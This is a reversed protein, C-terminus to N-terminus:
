KQLSYEKGLMCEKFVGRVNEQHAASAIAVFMPSGMAFGDGVTARATQMCEINDRHFHAETGGAPPNWIM